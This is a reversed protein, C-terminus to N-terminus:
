DHTLNKRAAVVQKMERTLEQYDETFQKSISGLGKGMHKIVATLEESLSDDIMQIHKKLAEDSLKVSEKVEDELAQFSRHMEQIQKDVLQTVTAELQEQITGIKEIFAKQVTDTNDILLQHSESAKKSSKAIENVTDEVHKQMEPVAVVAKDRMEKFVGLHRSLEQIQHQNTLLVEKLQVMTDPISKTETSITVVSEKVDSIASVGQAYLTIMSEMQQKNNEQWNILGDVSLNLRKFNDGFQETLNTNFDTIVEKLAKIIQETASKSLMESFSQLVKWLETSFTDFSKTSSRHNDNVDSRLLKLQGALSSEENGSIAQKLAEFHKEQNTVATHLGILHKEQSTIANLIDRPEVDIIHNKDQRWRHFPLILTGFLRYIIAAAMGALSTIFATKLGDLLMEISADIDNPRFDLLGIVVGTFTGLIGISTLLAPTSSTFTKWQNFVLFILSIIFLGAIIWLVFNTITQAETAKLLEELWEAWNFM